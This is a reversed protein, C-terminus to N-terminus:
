RNPSGHPARSYSEPRTRQPAPRRHSPHSSPRAPSVSSPKTQVRLGSTVLDVRGQVATRRAAGTTPVLRAVPLGDRDVDLAGDAQEVLQGSADVYEGRDDLWYGIRLGPDDLAKGLVREIGQSAKTGSPRAVYEAVVRLADYRRRRFRRDVANRVSRLLPACALAAALTAVSAPLASDTRASALQSVGLVGLAWLAGLCVTVIAWTVTRTILRDLEFLRYRSIAVGTALPLAALGAGSTVLVLVDVHLYSAVGAGALGVGALAAGFGVWRLQLRQEGRAARFRYLLSAAGVLPAFSVLSASVARLVRLALGGDVTWPHAISEFPAEFHGPEISRTILLLVGAVLLAAVFGRWRRSPLRGTPTLLMVVTLLCLWPIFTAEDLYLLWVGGRFQPPDVLLALRTYGSLVGAAVMSLGLTVFCPGVLNRTRVTLAVGVFM